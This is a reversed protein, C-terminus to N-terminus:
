RILIEGLQLIISKLCDFAFIPSLVWCHLFCKRAYAHAAHAAVFLLMQHSYLTSVSLMGNEFELLMDMGLTVADNSSVPATENQGQVTALIGLLSVVLLVTTRMKSRQVGRSTDDTYIAYLSRYM